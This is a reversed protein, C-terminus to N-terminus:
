SQHQMLDDHRINTYPTMIVSIISHTHIPDHHSISNTTAPPCRTTARTHSKTHSWSQQHAVSRKAVIVHLGRDDGGHSFVMGGGHHHDGHSVFRMVEMVLFRRVVMLTVHSDCTPHSSVDCVEDGGHSFVEDGGHPDCTPHSSVDCVADPHRDHLLVTM